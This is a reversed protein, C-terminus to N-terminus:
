PSVKGGEKSTLIEINLKAEELNFRSCFDELEKVDGGNEVIWRVIPQLMTTANASIIKRYEEGM